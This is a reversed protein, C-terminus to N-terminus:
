NWNRDFEDKLVNGSDYLEEGSNLMVDDCLVELMFDPANYYKKM